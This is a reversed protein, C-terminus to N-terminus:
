KIKKHEAKTKVSLRGCQPCILFGENFQGCYICKHPKQWVSKRKKKKNM